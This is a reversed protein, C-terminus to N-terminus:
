HRKRYDYSRRDSYRSHRDRHKDYYSYYGDSYSDRYRHKHNRHYRRDNVFVDWARYWNVRHYTHYRSRSFWRRFERHERLWGPMGRSYRRHEARHHSYDGAVYNFRNRSSDAFAQPAAVTALAACIILSRTIYKMIPEKQALRAVLILGPMHIVVSNARHFAANKQVVASHALRPKESVFRYPVVKASNAIM